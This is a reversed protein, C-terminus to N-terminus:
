ASTPSRPAATTGGDTITVSQEIPAFGIMRVTVRTQGVPVSPIVYSGDDRTLSGLRTGTVIVQAGSIPNQTASHRVTGRVSGSAGQALAERSTGAVLALLAAIAMNRLAAMGERAVM